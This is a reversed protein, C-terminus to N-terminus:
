WVFGDDALEWFYLAAITRYPTWAVADAVLKEMPLNKDNGRFIKFGRRVGLDSVPFIDLRNQTFILFMDITWHGIGRIKELMTRVENEDSNLLQGDNLSGKQFADALGLIYETKRASLGAKRIQNIDLELVNGPSMGRNKFLDLFRNHIAGAAKGSLQQYIIYRVLSSFPKHGNNLTMYGFTKVLPIFGSDIQCLKDTQMQLNITAM